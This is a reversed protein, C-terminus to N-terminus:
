KCSVVFIVQLEKFGLWKALIDASWLYIYMYLYIYM